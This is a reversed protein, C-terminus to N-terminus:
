AWAVDRSRHHIGETVPRIAISPILREIGERQFLAAIIMGHAILDDGGMFAIPVLKHGSAEAVRRTALRHEILLMHRMVHQRAKVSAKGFNIIAATSFSLVLTAALNKVSRTLKDTASEAQKFGKADLKSGIVIEPLAM